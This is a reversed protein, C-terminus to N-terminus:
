ARWCARGALPSRATHRLRSPRPTQKAPRADEEDAKPPILVLRGDV